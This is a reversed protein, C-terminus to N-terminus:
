FNVNIGFSYSKLPPTNYWVEGDTPIEPDYQDHSALTWLNHGTFYVRVNNVKITNAWNRPLSVGVNINKLRIHDTSHIRRSNHYAGMSYTTPTGPIWAEFKANDGPKKWSDHYFTHVQNILADAAGSTETKDGARDYSYGGFTSSFSLNMDVFKWRISNSLGMTVKPFPSKYPVRTAKSADDTLERNITGDPLENNMFFMARGNDPNVHSYEFVYYQYYPLGVRQIRYTSIVDSGEMKLIENKNHSINFQTNWVWDKKQINNSNVTLEVGRNRMSGINTTYSSFGTTLSIPPNMFLDKTTRNYFELTLDVRNKIAMDLGMNLTYNREWVLDNNAINGERLATSGNYSSTISAVSLYSYRGSPRNGNVGYSVRLKGNTIFDKLGAMFSEDIFRWGGSVSWLTGWRSDTHLRSTGDRRISGGVYYKNGLNYNLRSIYSVLRDQQYYGGISVPIDGNGIETYNYNLFGRKIASLFDTYNDLIEYAILVDVNHGNAFAKVYNTNSSWVLQRYENYSKNTQGKYTPMDANIPHDWEEGRSNTYDYSLTTRFTLETLPKVELFVTNFARTLQQRNTNYEYFPVINRSTGGILSTNFTGDPNYIPDSPTNKVAYAYTPSTYWNTDYGLSQKMDSFLLNGGLKLWNNANYTVNLRGTLRNLEQSKQIGKSNSRSFSTFFTMRDSGGSVSLEQNDHSGKRLAAARWDTWGSWPEISWRPQARAADAAMMRDAYAIPDGEPGGSLNLGYTGQRVYADYIFQKREEGGMTPRYSYALDSVGIDSSFSIQAKNRDGQRTTILIVGNAARSGWLSAAAADKIVTINAIDNPNLTSMIDTGGSGSRGTQNVDGSIVPVGDIVFLPANSASFSGFGRIRLDSVGGPQSNSSTVSVGPANAQIMSAVTQNPIGALSETKIVSASGDYTSKKLNGFGTIIVEDLQQSDEELMVNIVRRNGVTIEYTKFGIYSFTLVTNANPVTISYIGDVNTITGNNSGKISVSVGVLTEGSADTVTGSVSIPQQQTLEVNDMNINGTVVANTANAWIFILCFLVTQLNKRFNRKSTM